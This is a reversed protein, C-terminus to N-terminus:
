WPTRLRAPRKAPPRAGLLAAIGAMGAFVALATTIRRTRSVLPRFRSGADTVEIWGVPSVAAGGGGGEGTGGENDGGSGGGFGMRARAVPIVTIGERVVPEGFATSARTVSGFREALREAVTEGATPRTAAEVAEASAPDTVVDAAPQDAPTFRAM